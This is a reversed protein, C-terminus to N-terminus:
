GSFVISGRMGGWWHQAVHCGYIPAQEGTFAWTVDLREGAPVHVSASATATRDLSAIKQSLGKMYKKHDPTDPMKGHDMSGMNMEAMQAEHLDQADQGGITFEHMEKGANVLTFTVIEGKKVTVTAPEFRLQDEMRIEVVRTAEQPLGGRGYTQPRPRDAANAATSSASGNGGCAGLLVLAVLLSTRVMPLMM